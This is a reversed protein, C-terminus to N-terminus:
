VSGGVGAMGPGRPAGVRIGTTCIPFSLSPCAFNSASCGLTFVLLQPNIGPGKWPQSVKKKCWKKKERKSQPAFSEKVFSLICHKRPSGCAFPFFLVFCFLFGVAVPSSSKLPVLTIRCPQSHYWCGNQSCRIMHTLPQAEWLGHWKM